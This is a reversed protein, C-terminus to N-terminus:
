IRKVQWSAAQGHHHEFWVAAPVDQAPSAYACMQPESLRMYLYAHIHRRSITSSWCICLSGKLSTVSSGFSSLLAQYGSARLPHQQLLSNYSVYCLLALLAGKSAQMLYPGVLADLRVSSNCKLSGELLVVFCIDMDASKSSADVCLPHQQHFLICELNTAV